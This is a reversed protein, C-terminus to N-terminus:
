GRSVWVRCYQWKRPERAPMEQAGLTSMINDKRHGHQYRIRFGSAFLLCTVHMSRMTLDYTPIVQVFLYMMILGVKPASKPGINVLSLGIVELLCTSNGLNALFTLLM